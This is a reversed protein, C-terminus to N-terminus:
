GDNHQLTPSSATQIVAHQTAARVLRGCVSRLSAPLTVCLACSVEMVKRHPVGLM